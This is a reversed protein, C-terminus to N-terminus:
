AIDMLLSASNIDFPKRGKTKERTGIPLYFNFVMAPCM